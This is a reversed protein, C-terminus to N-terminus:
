ASSHGYWVASYLLACCSMVALVVCTALLVSHGDQWCQRFVLSDMWIHRRPFGAALEHSLDAIDGNGEDCDRAKAANIRSHILGSFVLLLAIGRGLAAGAGAYFMTESRRYRGSFTEQLRVLSGTGSLFRESPFGYM